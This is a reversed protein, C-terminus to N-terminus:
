FIKNVKGVKVNSLSNNQVSTFIREMDDKFNEIWFYAHTIKKKLFFYLHIIDLNYLNNYIILEGLMEGHCQSDTAYKVMMEAGLRGDGKM